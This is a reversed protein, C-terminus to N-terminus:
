VIVVPGSGVGGPLPVPLVGVVVVGAGLGFASAVQVASLDPYVRTRSSRGGGPRGVLRVGGEGELGEGDGAAASGRDRARAVRLRVAQLVHSNEDRRLVRAEM